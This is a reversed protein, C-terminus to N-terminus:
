LFGLPIPPPIPTCPSLVDRGFDFWVYSSTPHTAFARTYVGSAIGRSLRCIYLLSVTAQSTYQHPLNVNGIQHNRFGNLHSEKDKGDVLPNGFTEKIYVIRPESLIIATEWIIRQIEVPLLPFYHFSTSPRIFPNAISSMTLLKLSHLLM